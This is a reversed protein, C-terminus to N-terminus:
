SAVNAMPSHSPAQRDSSGNLQAFISDRFSGLLPLGSAYAACPQKAAGTHWCGSQKRIKRAASGDRLQVANELM